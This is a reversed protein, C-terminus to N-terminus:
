VSYKLVTSGSFDIPKSIYIGNVHLQLHMGTLQDFSDLNKMVCDIATDATVESLNSPWLDSNRISVGDLMTTCNRNFRFRTQNNKLSVCLRDPLEVVDCNNLHFEPVPIEGYLDIIERYNQVRELTVSQVGDTPIESLPVSVLEDSVIKLTYGTRNIKYSTSGDVLPQNTECIQARYSTSGDVLPQNSTSGDVLPQDTM